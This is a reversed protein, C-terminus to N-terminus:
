TMERRMPLVVCFRSGQGEGASEAWIRGKHHEIIKRCMSLGIGTGEYAARTHLRQFVKFLRNIQGPIIGVGNDAICLRWENNALEGTVTIEPIRGAIRYKVANGILNQLLRLIEDHRVLIRPWDGSITLKVQAEAIAPQLFLLAEDLEARSEVWTPPEGNMGVRSYELLSVLMQDIRQAGEIAYNFYDRKEGALQDALSAEILQLYSSIM